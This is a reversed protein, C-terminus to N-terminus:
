CHQGTAMMQWQQTTVPHDASTYYYM